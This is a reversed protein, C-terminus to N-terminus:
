LLTNEIFLLSSNPEKFRQFKILISESQTCVLEYGQAAHNSIYVYSSRLSPIFVQGLFWVGANFFLLCLPTRNPVIRVLWLDLVIMYLSFFLYRLEKTFVIGGASIM